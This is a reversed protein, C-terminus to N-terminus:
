SFNFELRNQQVEDFFIRQTVSFALLPEVLALKELFADLDFHFPIMASDCKWEGVFLM